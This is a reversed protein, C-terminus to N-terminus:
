FRNKTTLKILVISSLTIMLMLIHYCKYLVLGFRFCVLMHVFYIRNKTTLWCINTSQFNIGHEIPNDHTHTHNHTNVLCFRAPIFLHNKTTVKFVLYFLHITRRPSGKFSSHTTRQPSGIYFFM